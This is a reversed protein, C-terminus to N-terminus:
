VRPTSRSHARAVSPQVYATSLSRHARAGGRRQPGPRVGGGGRQTSSAGSSAQRMPPSACRSGHAWRGRTMISISRLAHVVDVEGGGLQRCVFEDEQVVVADAFAAGHVMDVEGVALLGCVFEDRHVTCVAGLQTVARQRRGM